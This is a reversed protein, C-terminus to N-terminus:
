KQPIKLQIIAKNAKILKKLVNDNVDIYFYETNDIWLNQPHENMGLCDSFLPQCLDDWCFRYLIVANTCM